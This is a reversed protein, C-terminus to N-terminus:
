ADKVLSDSNSGVETNPRSRKHVIYQYTYPLLACKFNLLIHKHMHTYICVSQKKTLAGKATPLVDIDESSMYPHAILPFPTTM